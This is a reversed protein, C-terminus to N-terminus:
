NGITVYPSREGQRPKYSDVIEQPTKKLLENYCNQHKAIQEQLKRIEYECASISEVEISLVRKANEELQTELEKLVEQNLEETKKM